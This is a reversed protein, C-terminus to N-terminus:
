SSFILLLAILTCVFIVFAGQMATLSGDDEPPMIMEPEPIGLPLELEDELKHM